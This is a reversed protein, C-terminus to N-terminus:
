QYSLSKICSFCPLELFLTSWMMVEEYWQLCRLFMGSFVTDTWWCRGQHSMYISRTCIRIYPKCLLDRGRPKSSCLKYDCLVKGGPCTHTPERLRFVCFLGGLLHEPCFSCIAHLFVLGLWATQKWPFWVRSNRPEAGAQTWSFGM